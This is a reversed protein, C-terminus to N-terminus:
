LDDGIGYRKLRGRAPARAAITEAAVRNAVPQL